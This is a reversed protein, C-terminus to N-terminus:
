SNALLALREALAMETEVALYTDPFLRRFNDSPHDVLGSNM